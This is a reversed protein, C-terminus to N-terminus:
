NDTTSVPNDKGAAFSQICGPSTSLFVTETYYECFLENVDAIDYM